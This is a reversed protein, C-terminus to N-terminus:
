VPPAPASSSSTETIWTLVHSDSHSSTPILLSSTLDSGSGAGSECTMESTNTSSRRSTTRRSSASSRNSSRGARSSCCRPFAAFRSSSPRTPTTTSTSSEVTLKGNYDTALADVTPALRKCPGCWEAWFDVLVLEGAQIVTEEFNGDTFTQVNDAAMSWEWSREAEPKWSSATFSSARLTVDHNRANVSRGSTYKSTSGPQVTGRTTRACGPWSCRVGARGIRSSSAAGPRPGHAAGRGTYERFVFGTSARSRPSDDPRHRCPRGRRARDAGDRLAPQVDSEARVARFAFAHPVHRRGGRDPAGAIRRVRHARRRPGSARRCHETWMRQYRAEGTGLVVLTADLAM